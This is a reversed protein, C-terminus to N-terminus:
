VALNGFNEPYKEKLFRFQELLSDAFRYDEPNKMMYNLEDISYFRTTEVDCEEPNPTIVGSYDAEYYYRFERNKENGTFQNMKKAKVFRLTIGELGLEELAEQKAAFEYRNSFYSDSMWSQEKYNEISVHGAFSSSLRGHKPDDSRGKCQVVISSIMRDYVIGHVAVHVLGKRHVIDRAQFIVNGSSDRRPKGTKTDVLLIQELSSHTVM